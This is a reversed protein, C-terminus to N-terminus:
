IYFKFQPLPERDEPVERMIEGVLKSFRITIPLLGGLAASNWNLKTLALVEELLVERSTDQGIHDAVQLPAPVHMGHFENLEAIYGTTYLYDLEGVTFRTGRLPPYKSTTILRVTSQPDLAMLDYRRVRAEIAVRFGDREDPWYRSTKHVVVRTPTQHMVQEYRDLAMAM